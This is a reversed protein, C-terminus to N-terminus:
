KHCSDVLPMPVNGLHFSFHGLILTITKDEQLVHLSNSVVLEDPPPDRVEQFGDVRVNQQFSVWGNWHGVPVPSEGLVSHFFDVLDEPYLPKNTYMKARKQFAKNEKVM